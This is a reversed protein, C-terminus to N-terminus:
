TADGEAAKSAPTQVGKAIQFMSIRTAWALFEEASYDQKAYNCQGCCPVCNSVTYGIANDYRDVGNYVFTGHASSGAVSKPEAGCYHCPLRTLSRFDDATM